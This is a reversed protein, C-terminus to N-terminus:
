MKPEEPRGGKKMGKEKKLPPQEVKLSIAMPNEMTGEYVIRVKEGASIDALVAPKGAKTIKAEMGIAMTMTMGKANKVTIRGTAADVAEVTGKCINTKEKKEHKKEAKMEKKVEPQKAPAAPAQARALGVGFGGLLLAIM